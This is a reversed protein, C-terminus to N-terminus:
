ACRCRFASGDGIFALADIRPLEAPAALLAGGPKVTEAAVADDLAVDPRSETLDIEDDPASLREDDALHLRALTERGACAVLRHVAVFALLEDAERVAIECLKRVKLDAVVDEGEEPAAAAEDDLV